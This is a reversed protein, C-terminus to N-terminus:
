KGLVDFSVCSFVLFCVDQSDGVSCFNRQL